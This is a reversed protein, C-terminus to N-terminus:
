YLLGTLAWHTSIATTTEAVLTVTITQGVPAPTMVLAGGPPNNASSFVEGPIPDSSPLMETAGVKVSSVRFSAAYEAPIILRQGAFGRGKRITASIDVGTGATTAMATVPSGLTTLGSSGVGFCAGTTPDVLPQGNAGGIGAGCQAAAALARQIFQADTEGCAGIVTKDQEIGFM